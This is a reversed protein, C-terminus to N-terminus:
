NKWWSVYEHLVCTSRMFWMRLESMDYKLFTVMEVMMMHYDTYHDKTTISTSTAGTRISQFWGMMGTTTSQTDDDPWVVLTEMELAAIASISYSVTAIRMAPPVILNTEAVRQM